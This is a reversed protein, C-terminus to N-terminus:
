NGAKVDPERVNLQRKLAENEKKLDEVARVLNLVTQTVEDFTIM